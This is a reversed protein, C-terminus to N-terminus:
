PRSPLQRGALLRWLREVPGAGFSKLWLPSLVLQLTWVPLTFLWLEAMWLRGFLGFTRFTIIALVTHMLYNTLSLRGVAALRQVLASDPRSSAFSVVIATFALAVGLSGVYNFHADILFLRVFDFQHDLLRFVGIAILPVGLSLGVVALATMSQKSWGGKFFRTKVLAMGLLMMAMPRWSFLAFFVTQIELAEKANVPLAAWFGSRMAAIYQATEEPSESFSANMDALSELADEQESTLTGGSDLVAQAELAPNRMWAMFAGIGSQILMPLLFSLTALVLLTIPKFRRLPYILMGSIAYLTLIDGFWMGYAHLLGVVLLVLMRRYHGRATGPKVALERGGADAGTQMAIGAGFLMAFISMMKLDFVGHTFIWVARDLGSFTGCHAAVGPAMPNMYADGPLAFAIVNMPLIGLLAFGRLADITPSRSTEVHSM